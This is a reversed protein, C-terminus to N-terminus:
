ILIMGLLNNYKSYLFSLNQNLNELVKIREVAHSKITNYYKLSLMDMFTEILQAFFDENKYALQPYTIVGLNLAM